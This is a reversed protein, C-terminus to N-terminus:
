PTASGGTDSAHSPLVSGVSHHMYIRPTYIRAQMDSPVPSSIPVFGAPGTQPEQPVAFDSPMKMRAAPSTIPPLLIKGGPHRQYRIFVHIFRSQYCLESGYGGATQLFILALPNPFSANTNLQFSHAQLARNRARHAGPDNLSASFNLGSFSTPFRLSAVDFFMDTAPPPDLTVICPLM